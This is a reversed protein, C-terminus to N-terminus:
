GVARRQAQAIRPGRACTKAPVRQRGARRDAGPSCALALERRVRRRVAPAFRLWDFLL